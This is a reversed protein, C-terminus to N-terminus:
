NIRTNRVQSVRISRVESNSTGVIQIKSPKFTNNFNPLEFEITNKTLKAPFTKKTRGERLAISLKLSQLTKLQSDEVEIAITNKSNETLKVNDSFSIDLQSNKYYDNTITRYYIKGNNKKIVSDSPTDKKNIGILVVDSISFEKNYNYLDYQNKRSDWANLQYPREGSYFWYFSTNQYSNFFLPTKNGIEKKLNNVWKENGHMELQKPLIGDVAMLLRAFTSIVLTIIALIKFLKLDKQNDILYNFPIVILPISIPVIWQAQTHTKFSSLFFFGIFGIVIFNLAKQFLDTNKINKFFAKYVVPFTFGIIAIANLFHTYTYRFKYVTNEKREFLHYKFSPFDNEIQWFLHPLFLIITLLATLWIKGDKLAKLNSLLVFGIVLVSQYKSYLMCAMSIALILYSITSKKNLYRQYGYLFLAIFFMLPTDPVTIFGYVNFLSTTLALLVFLWKYNNKNPNDILLWVLYFAIPLTVASFFRVSLEGTSFFFKSISIWVAVMPPHDFYGWDMENSYTWYYAEDAILETAFSQIINVLFLAIGFFLFFYRSKSISKM